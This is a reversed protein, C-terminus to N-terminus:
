HAAGHTADAADGATAAAAGGGRAEAGGGRAFESETAVVAHCQLCREREPHSCRIAERAAVGAHCALCTEHMFLPHPLVPPAGPYLRAGRCLDQPL